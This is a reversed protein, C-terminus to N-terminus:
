QAAHLAAADARPSSRVSVALLGRSVVLARSAGTGPVRSSPIFARFGRLKGVRAAHPEGLIMNQFFIPRAGTTNMRTM